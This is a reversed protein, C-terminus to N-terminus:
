RKRQESANSEDQSKANADGGHTQGGPTAQWEFEDGILENLKRRQQETLVSLLEERADERLQKYFEQTKRQIEVRLQQEKEKLRKKQAETLGLEDAVEGNALGASSGYGTSNLKMQLAIQRLRRVQHPLLIDSVRKDTDDALKSSIENYKRAWEQRDEDRMTAYLDRLETMTDNRLRTLKEKQDDVIELEKEMQPSYVWPLLTGMPNVYQVPEGG